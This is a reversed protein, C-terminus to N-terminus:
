KGSVPTPVELRCPEHSPAVTVFIIRFVLWESEKERAQSKPDEGSHHISGWRMPMPMAMPISPPNSPFGWGDM